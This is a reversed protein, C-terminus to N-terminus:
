NSSPRLTVPIDSRTLQPKYMDLKVKKTPTAAAATINTIGVYISLSISKLCATSIPSPNATAANIIHKANTTASM